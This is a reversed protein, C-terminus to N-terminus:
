RRRSQDGPPRRDEGDFPSCLNKKETHEGHEQLTHLCADAILASWEACGGHKGVGHCEGLKEVEVGVSGDVSTLRIVHTSAPAQFLLQVRSVTPVTSEVRLPLSSALKGGSGSFKRRRIEDEKDGGEDWRKCM